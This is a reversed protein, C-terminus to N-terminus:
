RWARSPLARVGVIAALSSKLFFLSDGARAGGHGIGEGGEMKVDYKLELAALTPQPGLDFFVYPTVETADASRVTDRRQLDAPHLIVHM